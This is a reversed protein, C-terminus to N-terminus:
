GSPRSGLSHKLQLQELSCSDQKTTGCSKEGYGLVDTTAASM